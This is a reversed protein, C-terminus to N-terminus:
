KNYNSQQILILNETFTKKYLKENKGTYNAMENSKRLHFVENFLIGLVKTTEYQKKITIENPINIINDINVPLIISNNWNSEKLKSFM